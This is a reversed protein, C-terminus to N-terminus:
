NLSMASHNDFGYMRAQYDFYDPIMLPRGYLRKKSIAKAVRGAVDNYRVPDLHITLEWCFSHFTAILQEEDTVFDSPLFWSMMKFLSDTELPCKFRQLKDDWVFRRKLFSVEDHALYPRMESGKGATTFDLKFVERCFKQYTINNFWDINQEIVAALMDDGFTDPKIGDFFSCTNGQPRMIYFAYMLM